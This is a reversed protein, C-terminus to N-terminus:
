LARPHGATKQMHDTMAQLWDRYKWGRNEVMAAAGFDDLLKYSLQEEEPCNALFQGMEAIFTAVSFPEDRVFEDAAAWEDPFEDHWDQHMYAGFFHRLMPYDTM